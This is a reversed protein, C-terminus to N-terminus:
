LADVHTVSPKLRWYLLDAVLGALAAIPILFYHDQMFSLMAINLTLMLTFTGFPLSWRRIALLIVSTLIISQLIISVVALAQYSFQDQQSSSPWLFVFPHAIQSILTISSLLF